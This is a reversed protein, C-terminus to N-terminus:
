INQPHLGGLYKVPMCGDFIKRPTSGGCIQRVYMRGINPPDVGGLYEVSMCGDLIWEWAALYNVSAGYVGGEWTALYNVSPCMTSPRVAYFTFFPLFISLM